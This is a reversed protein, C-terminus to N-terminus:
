PAKGGPRGIGEVLGGVTEGVGRGYYLADYIAAAELIKRCYLRTEPITVTEALLDDPLGEGAATANRYKGWGANYAMMARMAKGGTLRLLSAFHGLGIDLNDKPDKLDYSGIGM